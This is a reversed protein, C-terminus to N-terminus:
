IDNRLELEDFYSSPMGVAEEGVIAVRLGMAQLAAGLSKARMKLDITPSTAVMGFVRPEASRTVKKRAQRMRLMIVRTIRELIRPDSRVLAMFGNHSISLLETDRLAYVAHEHAEGAIMSMEGVPEGARIHGVLELKGDQSTRFAGLSGSLVFYITDSPEGIDFLKWGGPLGFYRTDNEAAKLAKPPADRLFPVSKLTPLLATSGGADKPKTKLPMPHVRGSKKGAGGEGNVCFESPLTPSYGICRKALAKGGSRRRVK